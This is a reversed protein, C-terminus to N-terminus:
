VRRLGALECLQALSLVEPRMTPEVGAPLEADRGLIAGLQKRRKSFLTHLLASFAHPDDCLPAARRHLAVVASDISPPPYFCGPKLVGVRRIEFVAQLLIGLPGYAKTGPPATLRDAVEKQIMVVAHTMAPYDLALNALLPSAIHYPLNAILKFPPVPMRGTMSELPQPGDSLCSAQGVSALLAVVEPNIAHKGDLADGLHLTIRDGLRGRLIPEMDRDIEVAVLRAGADALRETLAGTGPGVELVVDGPSLAAADMIKAMHNGDHLFNQGFKKKPHLGHEALLRKIDNLTQAM